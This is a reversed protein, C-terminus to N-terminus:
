HLFLDVVHLAVDLLSKFLAALFDLKTVDAAEWLWALGECVRVLLVELVELLIQELLEDISDLLLINLVKLLFRSIQQRLLVRITQM